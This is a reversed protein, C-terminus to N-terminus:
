LLIFNINSFEFFPALEPKLISKFLTSIQTLFCLLPIIFSFVSLLVGLRLNEEFYVVYLSIIFIFVSCISASCLVFKISSIIESKFSSFNKDIYHISCNKLLYLDSGYRALMNVGLLVAIAIMYTGIGDSSFYIALVLSLLVSGSSNIARTIFTFLSKKLM